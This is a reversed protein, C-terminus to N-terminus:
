RSTILIAAPAHRVHSHLTHQVTTGRGAYRPRPIQVAMTELGLMKGRSLYSLRLPHRCNEHRRTGDGPRFHGRPEDFDAGHLLKHPKLSPNSLLEGAITCLRSLGTMMLHPSSGVRALSPPEATAQSVEAARFDRM